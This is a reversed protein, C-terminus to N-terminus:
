CKALSFPANSDSQIIDSSAVTKTVFVQQIMPSCTTIMIACYIVIAVNQGALVGKFSLFMIGFEDKKINLGEKCAL